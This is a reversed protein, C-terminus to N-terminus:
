STVISYTYYDQAYHVQFGVSEYLRLANANTAELEEITRM